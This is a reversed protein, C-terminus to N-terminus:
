RCELGAMLAESLRLREREFEEPGSTPAIQIPAGLTVDVRSFPKPVFFRDWSKARWATRYEINLPVVPAGSKQAVFLIGSTVNYVPGRPGDPTILAHNGAAIVDVLQRLAVVGKRSTSGRVTGYGYREILGAIIDGDRSASILGFSQRKPFCRKFIPPLMLLRNHWVSIIVPRERAIAIVGHPDAVHIRLTAAWARHLAHAFAILLPSSRIKM